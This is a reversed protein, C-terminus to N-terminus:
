SENSSSSSTSSSSTSSSSSSERRRNRRTRRSRSTRSDSSRRRKSAQSKTGSRLTRRPSGQVSPSEIPAPPPPPPLLLSRFVGSQLEMGDGAQVVAGAYTLAPGVGQHVPALVEPQGPPGQGQRRRGDQQRLLGLVRDHDDDRIVCFLAELQGRFNGGIVRFIPILREDGFTSPLSTAAEIFNLTKQRNDAAGAPPTLTLLPRPEFGRVTFSSGPNNEKYLDGLQRLIAIRVRTSLTVKNRISVNILMPPRALPNVRRFFGSFADRIKRSAQVSSLQASYRTPAGQVRRNTHNWVLLVEFMVQLNAARLVANLADRVQGRVAVQWDRRSLDRAM